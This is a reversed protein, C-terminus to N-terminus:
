TFVFYKLLVVTLIILICLVILLGLKKSRECYCCQFSTVTSTELHSVSGNSKIVTGLTFNSKLTASPLNKMKIKLKQTDQSSIEIVHDDRPPASAEVIQRSYKENYKEDYAQDFDQYIDSDISVISTSDEKM